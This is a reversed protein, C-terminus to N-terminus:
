QFLCEKEAQAKMANYRKAMENIEPPDRFVGGKEGTTSQGRSATSLEVYDDYKLQKTFTDMVCSCKYLYEFKGPHQQMCQLVFQVVESAPYEHAWTSGSVLVLGLVLYKRM